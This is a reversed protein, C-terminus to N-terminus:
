DCQGDDHNMKIKSKLTIFDINACNYPIDDIVNTEHPKTKRERVSLVSLAVTQESSLFIIYTNLSLHLTSTKNNYKLAYHTM